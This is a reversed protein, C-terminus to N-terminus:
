FVHHQNVSREQRARQFLGRQFGSKGERLEVEKGSAKDNTGADGLSILSERERERDREREKERGRARARVRM